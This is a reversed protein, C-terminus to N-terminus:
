YYTRRKDKSVPIALEPFRTSVFTSDCVGARVGDSSPWDAVNRRLRRGRGGVGCGRRDMEKGTGGAESGAGM